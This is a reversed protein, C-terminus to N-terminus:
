DYRCGVFPPLVAESTGVPFIAVTKYEGTSSLTCHLWALAGSVVPERGRKGTLSGWVLRSMIRQIV